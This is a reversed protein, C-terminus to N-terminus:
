KVRWVRLGCENDEAFNRMWIRVKFNKDFHKAYTYSKGRCRASVKEAFSSEGKKRAGMQDPTLTIPFSDGINKMKHFPYIISILDVTGAWTPMEFGPEVPYLEEATM